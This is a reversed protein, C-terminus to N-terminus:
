GVEPRSLVVLVEKHLVRLSIAWDLFIVMAATIWWGLMDEKRRKSSRSSSPL